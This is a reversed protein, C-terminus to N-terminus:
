SEQRNRNLRVGEKATIERVLGLVKLAQMDKKLDEWNVNAKQMIRTIRIPGFQAINKVIELQRELRSRRVTYSQGNYDPSTAIDWNFTNSSM